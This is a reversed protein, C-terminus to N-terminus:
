MCITYIKKFINSHPKFHPIINQFYKQMMFNKIEYIQIPKKSMEKLFHIKFSDKSEFLLYNSLFLRTKYNTLNKKTYNLIYINISYTM